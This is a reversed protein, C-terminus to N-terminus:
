SVVVQIKEGLDIYHQLEAMFDKIANRSDTVSADDEGIGWGLLICGETDHNTNGSHIRVGEFGEVDLIHPMIKKFRVSEDLILDYTGRPIATEKPIKWSSVPMGEVERVKDECSYFTQKPTKFEGLTSDGNYVVRNLYFTIM